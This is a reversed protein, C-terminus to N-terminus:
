KIRESVVFMGSTSTNFIELSPRREGESLIALRSFIARRTEPAVEIEVLVRERELDAAGVILALAGLLACESTLLLECRIFSM